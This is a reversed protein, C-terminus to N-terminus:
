IKSGGIQRDTRRDTPRDTRVSRTMKVGRDGSLLIEHFSQLYYASMIQLHVYGCTIKVLHIILLSAELKHM